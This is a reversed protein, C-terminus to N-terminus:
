SVVPVPAQHLWPSLPLHCISPGAQAPYHVEDMIGPAFAAAEFSQFPEPVAQGQVILDHKRRYDDSSMAARSGRASSMGAGNAYGNDPRGYDAAAGYAHGNAAPQMFMTIHQTVLSPVLSQKLDGLQKSAYLLDLSIFTRSRLLLQRLQLPLTSM